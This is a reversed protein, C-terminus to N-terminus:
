LVSADLRTQMRTFISFTCDACTHHSTCVFSIFDIPYEAVFRSHCRPILHLLRAEIQTAIQLRTPQLWKQHPTHWRITTHSSKPAISLLGTRMNVYVYAYPFTSIIHTCVHTCTIQKCIDTHSKITPLTEYIHSHALTDKQQMTTSHM